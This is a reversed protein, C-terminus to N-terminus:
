KAFPLLSYLRCILIPPFISLLKLAAMAPADVAMLVRPVVMLWLTLIAAPAKAAVVAAMAPTPAALMLTPFSNSAAMSETAAVAPAVSSSYAARSAAAMSIPRVVDFVALSLASARSYMARAPHFTSCDMAPSGEMRLSESAVPSSRAVVESRTVSEM